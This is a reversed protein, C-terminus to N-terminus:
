SICDCLQHIVNCFLILMYICPFSILDAIITFILIYESYIRVRCVILGLAHEITKIFDKQTM